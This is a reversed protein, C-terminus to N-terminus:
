RRRAFDRARGCDGPELLKKALLALVDRQRGTWDIERNLLDGIRESRPRIEV